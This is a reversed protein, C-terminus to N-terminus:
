RLAAMDEVIGARLGPRQVKVAVVRGDRLEARHIQSLSAAAVPTPDIARFIKSLRVGFEAELIRRADEFPFPAVRDQLRSLETVYAAPLLDSRTSLLQGLKIFTPGLRELDAALERPGGGGAPPLEGGAGSGELDARFYKRALYAIDRYRGWHRVKLRTSEM